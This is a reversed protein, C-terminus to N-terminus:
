GAILKVAVVSIGGVGCLLVRYFAGPDANALWEEKMGSQEMQRAAKELSQIMDERRSIIQSPSLGADWGIAQVVCLVRSCWSVIHWQM